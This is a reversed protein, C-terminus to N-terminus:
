SLRLSPHAVTIRGLLGNYLGLLGNFVPVRMRPHRAPKEGGGGLLAVCGVGRM